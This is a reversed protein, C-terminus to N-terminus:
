SLSCFCLRSIWQSYHIKGLDILENKNVPKKWIVNRKARYVESEFKPDGSCGIIFCSEEANADKEAVRVYAILLIGNEVTNELPFM